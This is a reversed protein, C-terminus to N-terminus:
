LYQVFIECVKKRLELCCFYIRKRSAMFACQASALSWELDPNYISIHEAVRGPRKLGTRISCCAQHVDRSSQVSYESISGRNRPRRAQLRTMINVSSGCGERQLRARCNQCWTCPICLLIIRNWFNVLFKNRVKCPCLTCRWCRCSDVNRM